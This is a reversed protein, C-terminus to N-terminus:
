PMQKKGNEVKRCLAIFLHSTFNLEAARCPDARVPHTVDFGSVTIGIVKEATIDSIPVPYNEACPIIYDFM